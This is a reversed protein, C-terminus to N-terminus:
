YIIFQKYVARLYTPLVRMEAQCRARIHSDVRKSSYVAAAHVSQKQFVHISSMNYLIWNQVTLAIISLLKCEVRRQRPIPLM